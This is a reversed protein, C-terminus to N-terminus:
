AQRGQEDTQPQFEVRLKLDDLWDREPACAGSIPPGGDTTVALRYRSSFDLSQRGRPRSSTTAQFPKHSLRSAAM